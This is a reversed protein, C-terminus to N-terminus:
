AAATAKSVYLKGTPQFVIRYHDACWSGAIDKTQRGCCTKDEFLWRCQGPAADLFSIGNGNPLGVLTPVPASAPLPSGQGPEKPPAAQLDRGFSFPKDHSQKARHRRKKANRKMRIQDLDLRPRVGKPKMLGLRHVFGIVANRTKGPIQWSIERASLGDVVWLKAALGSQEQTWKMRQM